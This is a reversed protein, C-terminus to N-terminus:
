VGRTIFQVIIPSQCRTCIGPQTLSAFGHFRRRLPIQPQFQHPSCFRGSQGSGAPHSTALFFKAVLCGYVGEAQQQSGDVHSADDDNAFPLFVMSGHKEIAFLYACAAAGTHVNSYVGDFACVQQSTAFRIGNGNNASGGAACHPLGARGKVHVFDDDPRFRGAFYVQVSGYGDVQVSNGAALPDVNFFNGDNDQIPRTVRFLYGGGASSAGADTENSIAVHGRREHAGQRVRPYIYHHSQRCV